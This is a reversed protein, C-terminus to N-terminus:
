NQSWCTFQTNLDGFSNKAVASVGSDVHRRNVASLIVATLNLSKVAANMDYNCCRASSQIMNASAGKVKFIHLGHNEIFGIFHQIHSESFVQFSNETGERFFSLSCQERCCQRGSDSLHSFVLKIIRVANKNRLFFNRFTFLRLNSLRSVDDASVM